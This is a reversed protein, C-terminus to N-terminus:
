GESVRHIFAGGWTTVNQTLQVRARELAGYILDRIVSCYLTKSRLPLPYGAQDWAPLDADGEERDGAISASKHPM